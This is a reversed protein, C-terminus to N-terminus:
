DNPTVMDSMAEVFEQRPMSELMQVIREADAGCVNHVPADSTACEFIKNAVEQPDAEAGSQRQLEAASAAFQAAIKRASEQLEDDGRQLNSDTSANFSTGYGGPAVAKVDINFAKYEQAMSETLGEAAFKSACYISYLPLGFYGASSTVNIITGGKQQRMLPLVAQSVRVVGFVNTNFLSFVQQESHQELHGIGGFGANNVLVDISGFTELTKGVAEDISAQDTVDLRTALVNKLNTLEQEKEPSRMTAVVNWGERQFTKATLNGFGSSAGTILVTKAM